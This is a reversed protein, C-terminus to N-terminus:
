EQVKKLHKEFYKRDPKECELLNRCKRIWVKIVDNSMTKNILRLTM